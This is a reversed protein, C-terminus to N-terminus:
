ACTARKKDAYGEIEVQLTKLRVIFSLSRVRSSERRDRCGLMAISPKEKDSCAPDAKTSDIVDALMMIVAVEAVVGRKGEDQTEGPVWRHRIPEYVGAMNTKIRVNRASEYQFLIVPMLDVAVQNSSCALDDHVVLFACRYANHRPSVKNSMM